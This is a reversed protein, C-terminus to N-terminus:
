HERFASAVATWPRAHFHACEVQWSVVPVLLFRDFDQQESSAHQKEVVVALEKLYALVTQSSTMLIGGLQGAGKGDYKGDHMRLRVEFM